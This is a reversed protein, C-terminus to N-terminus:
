VTIEIRNGENDLIVSEYYGDGTTRPQGAVTYGDAELQATLADVKEKSGTSFALHTLGTLFEKKDDSILDPRSMLELRVDGDFSLFYTQLGTKINHYKNGSKAGFYKEYFARSADLDSVYISIHNIKM